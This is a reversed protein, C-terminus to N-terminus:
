WTDAGRAGGLAAEVEVVAGVEAEFEGENRETARDPICSGAFRGELLARPCEAVGGGEGSLLRGLSSVRAREAKEGPLAGLAAVVPPHQLQVLVDVQL